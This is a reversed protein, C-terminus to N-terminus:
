RTLNPSLDEEDDLEELEDMDEDSLEFEDDAEDNREYEGSEEGLEFEDMKGAGTPKPARTKSPPQVQPKSETAKKMARKMDEDTPDATTPHRPAPHATSDSAPNDHGPHADERVAGGPDPSEAGITRSSRKAGRVGHDPREDVSVKVKCRGGGNIKWVGDEKAMPTSCRAEGRVSHIVVDGDDNEEVEIDDLGPLTKEEMTVVKMFKVFFAEGELGDLAAKDTGFRKEFVEDPMKAIGRQMQPVIEQQMSLTMMAWVAPGDQKAMTEVYLRYVQEPTKGSLDPGKQCGSSVLTMLASLAVAVFTTRTM